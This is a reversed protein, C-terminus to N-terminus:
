NTLWQEVGSEIAKSIYDKYEVNTIGLERFTIKRVIVIFKECDSVTMAQNEDNNWDLLRLLVQNEFVLGKDNTLQYVRKIDGVMSKNQDDNKFVTNFAALACILNGKLMESNVKNPHLRCMENRSRALRIYELVQEKAVEM